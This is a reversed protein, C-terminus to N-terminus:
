PSWREQLLCAAGAAVLGAGVVLEATSPAVGRGIMLDGVIGVAIASMAIAPMGALYAAVGCAAAIASVFMNAGFAIALGVALLAAISCAIRLRISGHLGRREAIRTRLWRLAPRVVIVAAIWAAAVAATHPWLTQLVGHSIVVVGLVFLLFSPMLAKRRTRRQVADVYRLRSAAASSAMQDGDSHGDVV